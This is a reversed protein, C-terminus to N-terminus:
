FNSKNKNSNKESSSDFLKAILETMELVDADFQLIDWYRFDTLKQFLEYINPNSKNNITHKKSEVGDQSFFIVTLEPNLKGESFVGTISFSYEGKKLSMIKSIEM